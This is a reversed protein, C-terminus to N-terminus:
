KWAAKGLALRAVRLEDTDVAFRRFGLGHLRAAVADSVRGRLRMGIRCGPRGERVEAVGELLEYTASDIDSRPDVALMGRRLYGDLPESTLLQSAPIGFMAAQLARVDIWM